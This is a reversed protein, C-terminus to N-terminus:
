TLAPLGGHHLARYFSAIHLGQSFEGAGIMDTVQRPSATLVALEEGPDPSQDAVRVAGLALYVHVRNTQRAPNAYFSGLSQWSDSAYGTEELLERAAARDPAEGDDVVGGPLETCLVGAAHRYQRVLVLQGDPTVAVSHAWDREEIVYYPGIQGGRPLACTDARLTMWRDKLVQESSLQQWPEPHTIPDAPM